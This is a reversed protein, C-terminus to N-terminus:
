SDAPEDGPFEETDTPQGEEMTYYVFQKGLETLIYKKTDDFATSRSETTATVARVPKSRVFSGYFDKERPQRIVYGTSLDLILMKFMDAEASDEAPLSGDLNLQQWIEKRTLGGPLADYIKRMALFHEDSYKDLWDIFMFLVFDPSTSRTAANALLNRILVRKGESEAASWNRFSKRVLRLYGPSEIRDRVKKRELKLGQLVEILTRGIEKIEREQLGLWISLLRDFETEEERSITLMDTLTEQESSPIGSLYALAKQAKQDLKVEKKKEAQNPKPKKSAKTKQKAM